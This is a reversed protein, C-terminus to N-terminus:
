LKTIAKTEVTVTGVVQSCTFGVIIGSQVRIHLIINRKIYMRRKTVNININPEHDSMTNPLPREVTHRMIMLRQKITTKRAGVLGATGFEDM